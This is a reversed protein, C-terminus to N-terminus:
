GTLATKAALLLAHTRCPWRLGLRGLLFWLLAEHGLKRLREATSSTLLWVMAMVANMIKESWTESCRAHCSLLSRRYSRDCVSAHTGCLVITPLLRRLLVPLTGAQIRYRCSMVGKKRVEDGAPVKLLVMEAFSKPWPIGNDALHEPADSFASPEEDRKHLLFMQQPPRVGKITATSVHLVRVDPSCHFLM